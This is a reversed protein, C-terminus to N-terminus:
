RPKKPAEPWRKYLLTNNYNGKNDFGHLAGTSIMHSRNLVNMKICMERLYNEVTYISLGLDTAMEKVRKGMCAGALVRMLYPPYKGGYFDILDVKSSHM